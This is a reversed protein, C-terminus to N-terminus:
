EPGSDGGVGDRGGGSIRDIGLAAIRILGLALYILMAIRVTALNVSRANFGERALIPAVVYSGEPNGLMSASAAATLAILAIAFIRGVSKQVPDAKLAGVLAGAAMGLPILLGTNFRMDVYPIKMLLWALDFGLVSGLFGVLFAKDIRKLIDQLARSSKAMNEAIPERMM